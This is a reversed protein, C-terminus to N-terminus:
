MVSHQGNVPNHLIDRDRVARGKVVDIVEDPADPASSSSSSAPFRNFLRTQFLEL